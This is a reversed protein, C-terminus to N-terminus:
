RLCLWKRGLFEGKSNSLPATGVQDPGATIDLAPADIVEVQITTDFSCGFSNQVEYTFDYAGAADFVAEAVDADPDLSQVGNEGVTVAWYSSDPGAGISPALTM